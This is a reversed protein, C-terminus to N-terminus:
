KQKRRDRTRLHADRLKNKRLPRHLLTSGISNESLPGMYPVGFSELGCLHYVLLVLGVMIGFMGGLMAAFVLLFRCVRLAAGFDQNPMTYGSIGALAVVIVAIPSVVKAEVASQGVILAGIISVTEGVPNPLRLGAEQLLEFIILMGLVEAATSFPVQQKSEIVSLLLRTPIMEQHYMAVSVYVAPFLTTLILATYRLLTLASSVLFSQTRDEPVKIFETFTAPLLFGLPLGEVLLGVRGEAVHMCFKDPRETYLLQPFPTNPNDAIYEELDGSSLLADIDIADLRQLVQNVTDPNVIGDLYAVAVTTASRRGIITQRIKLDPDRLKRRILSTNIRLTEIFADKAGKISQEIEPPGISRQNATRVEFALACQLSDFVIACFGNVLCNTLTDMTDTRKVTCSYVAGQLIADICAAPDTESFRRSETLPRLIDESVQSGTVLGDIYCIYAPLNPNGGVDILRINFDDCDSFATRLARSSIPEPYKPNKRKHHPYASESNRKKFFSM